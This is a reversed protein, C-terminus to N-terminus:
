GKQVAKLMWRHKKHIDIRDQLFNALGLQKQKEAENYAFMLDSIVKDNDDMLRQCMIMASPITNEDTISSLEKFRQLAGPAYADLARIQEAIPDVAGHVEEYLKGFFEHYQPFNIGEVNWHFNQAKLYFAFTTALVVKMRNVLEDM